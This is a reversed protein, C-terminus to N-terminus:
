ELIGDDVTIRGRGHEKSYYMAGDARKLLMAPDTCVEPYSTLGISVNTPITMDEYAVVNHSLIEFLEEIIPLAVELNKDPLAAVFEEGGYRCVFGDYKEILTETKTAISKIVEDGALHGYSDNINKFKDIDLLAVSLSKNLQEAHKMSEVFLANFHIRNNIGTLGDKRAMHQMENYMKANQIAIDFQAIIARYFSMQNNFKEIYKDGMILIGYVDNEVELVKIYITQISIDKLFPFEDIINRTIIIEDEENDKYKEYVLPINDKLKYQLQAIETKIIYNPYKNYYVDKDIYVACFDINKVQMISDVIQNSIKPIDFSTAIYSLVDTQVAMEENIQKIEKNVRELEIKQLNLKQNTNKFREQMERMEANHEEVQSIVMRQENFKKDNMSVMDSFIRAQTWVVSLLILMQCFIFIWKDSSDFLFVGLLVSLSPIAIYLVNMNTLSKDSIDIILFYDVIFLILISSSAIVTYEANPIFVMALMVLVCQLYRFGRQWKEKISDFFAFAEEVFAMIVIGILYIMSQEFGIEANKSLNLILCYLIIAIYTIRHFMLNNKQLQITDRNKM